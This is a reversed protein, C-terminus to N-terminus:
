SMDFKEVRIYDFTMEDSRFRSPVILLENVDDDIYITIPKEYEWSNKPFLYVCGENYDATKAGRWYVTMMDYLYGGRLAIQAKTIINKGKADELPKVAAYVAAPDSGFYPLFREGDTKRMNQIYIGNGVDEATLTQRAIPKEQTVDSISVGAYKALRYASQEYPLQYSFSYVSYALLISFILYLLAYLFRPATLVAKRRRAEGSFILNLHVGALAFAFPVALIVYRPLGHAMMCSLTVVVPIAAALCQSRRYKVFLLPSMVISPVVVWHQLMLFPRLEAYPHELHEDWVDYWSNQLFGFVRWRYYVGPDATRNVEKIEWLSRGESWGMDIFYPMAGWVAAGQSAGPFLVFHGVSKYMWVWVPVYFAMLTCVLCVLVRVAERGRRESWLICAGDCLLLVLFGQARVLTAYAMLLNGLWLWRLHDTRGYRMCCAVGALMLPLFLNESLGTSVMYTFPPYMAAMAMVILAAADGVRMEKMVWWLLLLTLMSLYINTQYVTDYSAPFFRYLAALFLPYGVALAETPEAKVEGRAAEGSRDWVIFGYKQIDIAAYHYTASDSGDGTFKAMDNHATREHFALLLICLLLGYALARLAKSPAKQAPLTQTM